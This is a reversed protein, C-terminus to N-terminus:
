KCASGGLGVHAVGDHRGERAERATGSVRLAPLREVIQDLKLVPAHRIEANGGVVDVVPAEEVDVLEGADEIAQADIVHIAQEIRLLIEFAETLVGSAVEIEDDLLNERAM